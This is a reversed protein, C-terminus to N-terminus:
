WGRYVSKRIVHQHYLIIKTTLRIGIPWKSQGPFFNAKNGSFIAANGDDASIKHRNQRLWTSFKRYFKPSIAIFITQGVKEHHERPKLLFKKRKLAILGGESVRGLKVM